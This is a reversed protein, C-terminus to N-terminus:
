LLIPRYAIISIIIDSLAFYSSLDKIDCPYVLIFSFEFSVSRTNFEFRRQQRIIHDYSKLKVTSIETAFM